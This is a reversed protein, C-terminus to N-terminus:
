IALKCVVPLGVKLETVTVLPTFIAVPVRPLAVAVLKYILLADIDLAVVVFRNAASKDASEAAKVFKVEEFAVRVFEVDVLKYTEPAKVEADGTVKEPVEVNEVVVAAEDVAVLKFEVLRKAAFAVNVLAVVVRSTVEVEVVALKLTVPDDVKAEVVTVLRVAVPM